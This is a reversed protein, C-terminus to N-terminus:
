VGLQNLKKMQNYISERYRRENESQKGFSGSCAHRMARFHRIREIFEKMLAFQAHKVRVYPLLDITLQYINAETGLQWLFIPKRGEHERVHNSGGWCLAFLEIAPKFSCGLFARPLYNYYDGSKTKGINLCGEGDFFGAAWIKTVEDVVSGEFSKVMWTSPKHIQLEKAKAQISNWSHLPIATMISSRSYTRYLRDLTGLEDKTWDNKRRSRAELENTTVAGGGTEMTIRDATCYLSKMKM